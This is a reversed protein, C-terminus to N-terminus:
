GNGLADPIIVSSYTYNGRYDENEARENEGANKCGDFM